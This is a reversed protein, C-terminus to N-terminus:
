GSAIGGKELREVMEGLSGGGTGTPKEQLKKVWHRRDEPSIVAFNGGPTFGMEKLVKRETESFNSFEGSGSIEVWGYATGRGGRVSLSPCRKKIAKRIIAIEEKADAM